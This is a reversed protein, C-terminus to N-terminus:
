IISSLGIIENSNMLESSEILSPFNCNGIGSEFENLSSQLDMNNDITLQYSANEKYNLNLQQNQESTSLILDNLENLNNKDNFHDTVLDTNLNIEYLAQNFQEIQNFEVGHVQNVNPYNGIANLAQQDYIQNNIEPASLNNSFKNLLIEQNNKNNKKISNNLATNFELGLQVSATTDKKKTRGRRVKQGNNESLQKGKKREDEVFRKARIKAEKLWLNLLEEESSFEHLFGNSQYNKGYISEKIEISLKSNNLHSSQFNFNKQRM